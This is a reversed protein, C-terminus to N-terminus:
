GKGQHSDVTTHHLPGIEDVEPIGAIGTSPRSGAILRLPGVLQHEEVDRRAVLPAPDDEVHDAPRGFDAEHRHRDAAPDPVSSSM